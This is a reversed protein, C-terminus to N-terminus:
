ARNFQLVTSSPKETLIRQLQRGWANLAKRKEADYDYRLYTATVDRDSHNLVKKVVDRSVGAAAMGTAATRRLDHPRFDIQSRARIRQAAKQIWAVPKETRPSPFVLASMTKTDLHKKKRGENVQILRREYWAKLDRLIKVAAEALFVQHPRGNKVQSGPLTWWGRDLDVDRWRMQLVEGGRQVTMLRLRFVAQIPPTEEDLAAWFARIEDHTLVRDRKVEKGMPKIHNCPNQEIWEREVAFNFVKRILALMRNAHIPAGRDVIGEILTRVDARSLDALKENKWRPLPEQKLMREDQQWSKKQVKAHRELYEDALQGFTKGARIAAKDAAPDEGDDVASLRKRARRRAEALELRAVRGLKFRRVRNGHRYMVIWTKTGMYSVRVGFGPLSQDWYTTQQNPTPPKLAGVFRATLNVTPVAAEKTCLCCM